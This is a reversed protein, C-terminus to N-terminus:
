WSNVHSTTWHIKVWFHLEFSRSGWTGVLFHLVSLKSNLLAQPNESTREKFAWVIWTLSKQQFVVRESFALVYGLGRIVQTHLFDKFIECRSGGQSVVKGKGLWGFGGFTKTDWPDVHRPCPNSESGNSWPGHGWGPAPMKWMRNSPFFILGIKHSVLMASPFGWKWYSICRWFPENEIAM